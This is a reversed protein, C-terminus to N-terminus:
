LRYKITQIALLERELLGALILTIDVTGQSASRSLTLLIVKCLPLLPVWPLAELLLPLSSYKGHYIYKPHSWSGLTLLTCAESSRQGSTPWSGTVRCCCLRPKRFDSRRLLNKWSAGTTYHTYRFHLHRLNRLWLSHQLLQPSPMWCTEGSAGEFESAQSMLLSHSIPVLERCLTHSSFM